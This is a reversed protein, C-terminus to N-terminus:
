RHTAHHYTAPRAKSRGDQHKPETMPIETIIKDWPMYYKETKEDKLILGIHALAKVDQYVNSYDRSLKKALDRISIKGHNHVCRLLDRRRTTLTKFLLRENSFSIIEIPADKPPKGAEAQHWIDIFERAAEEISSVDVTLKRKRM